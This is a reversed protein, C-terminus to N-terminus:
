ITAPPRSKKGEGFSGAQTLLPSAVHVSVSLCVVSWVRTEKLCLAMSQDENQLIMVEQSLGLCSNTNKM